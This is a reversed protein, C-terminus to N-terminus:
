SCDCADRGGLIWWRGGSDLIFKGGGLVVWLIVVVM